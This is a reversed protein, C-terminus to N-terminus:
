KEVQFKGSDIIQGNKDKFQFIYLGRRFESLDLYVNMGPNTLELQKKGIFNYVVLLAPVPVQQKFQIQIFSRAPNPYIVTRKVHESMTVRKVQGFSALSFVSFLILFISKM